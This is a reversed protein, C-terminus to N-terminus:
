EEQIFIVRKIESPTSVKEMVKQIASQRLTYMGESMAAEKIKSAPQRVLILQRIKETISMMEFVATRGRYGTHFCYACGRGRSFTYDGDEKRLGLEGLLADDPKYEEKCEPCITRVLRQALVGILSSAVLFPEIGMDIIRTIASPADNTHLTSFVLHGTLASHIAIEATELDRIEGVMVIDPDQRLISRLGTVFTIGAVPNVQAQNIGELKYEVPDEITIINKTLKDMQNLAAYLTTTKGSGTPGTVLIIGYNHSILTNFRGLEGSSLGLGALSLLMSTKDLIRIVIKEGAITSFSAVRLDYEKDNFRVSIHGDQPRRRETIDMDALIKIRSIVASEINKPITMIDHLIGDIRYRLRMEPYQPEFHIDSARANIGENIISDVLRTVPPERMGAELKGPALIEKELETEVSPLESIMQKAMQQIDFHQEIAQLIEKETAVMQRIKFKSILSIEGLADLNLPDSMALFLTDQELRVPILRYRRVVSVPLLRAVRPEIQLDALKVYPIDLYRALASAIVQENVYGSTVLTRDLAQKTLSSKQIAKDLQEQTIINEIVLMKALKDWQEIKPSTQQLVKNIQASSVWGKNILIQGLYGGKHSQEKLALELQERTILGSGILIEGLKPKQPM